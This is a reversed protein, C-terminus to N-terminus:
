PPVVSLSMTFTTGKGVDSQVEVDGGHARAVSRAIYLGLGAGEATKDRRMRGFKRFLRRQDAASIGPGTDTIHLLVQKGRVEGAIAVSGKTKNYKIANSVLNGLARTLLEVDGSVRPLSQVRSCDIEIGKQKAMFANQEVVTAVVDGLDVPETAVTFTGAEIEASDLVNHVMDAARQAIRQIREPTDDGDPTELLSAYGMIAGLPNKLDHSLAQVAEDRLEEARLYVLRMQQLAYYTVLAIGFLGMAVNMPRAITPYRPDLPYHPVFGSAEAFIMVAYCISCWLAIFFCARPGLFLGGLAIWYTYLIPGLVSEYGGGYHINVTSAVNIVILSAAILWDPPERKWLAVIGLCAIQFVGVVIMPFVNRQPAVLFHIGLSVVLILIAVGFLTAYVSRINPRPLDGADAGM